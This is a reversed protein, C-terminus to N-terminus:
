NFNIKRSDYEYFQVSNIYHKTNCSEGRIERYGRNLLIKRLIWDPAFKREIKDDIKLQEYILKDIDVNDKVLEIPIIHSGFSADLIEKNIKLVYPINIFSTEGEKNKIELAKCLEYIDSAEIKIDADNYFIYDFTELINRYTLFTYIKQKSWGIEHARREDMNSKYVLDFFLREAQIYSDEFDMLSQPSYKNCNFEARITKSMEKHCTFLRYRFISEIGHYTASEMFYKLNEIENCNNKEPFLSVYLIKM